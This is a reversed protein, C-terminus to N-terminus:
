PLNLKGSESKVAEGEQKEGLFVTRRFAFADCDRGRGDARSLCCRAYLRQLGGFVFDGEDGNEAAAINVFEAKDLQEAKAKEVRFSIKEGIKLAEIDEVGMENCISQQLYLGAKFEETNIEVSINEGTDMIVTSKVTATFLVTNDESQRDIGGMSILLGTSVVLILSFIIVAIKNTNKVRM